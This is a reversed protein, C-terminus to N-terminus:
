ASAEGPGARATREPSAVCRHQAAAAGFLQFGAVEAARPGLAAVRFTETRASETRTRPDTWSGTVEVLFTPICRSGLADPTQIAM